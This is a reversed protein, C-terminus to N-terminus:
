GRYDRAALTLEAGFERDHQDGFAIRELGRKIADQKQMFESKAKLPMVSVKDDYAGELAKVFSGPQCLFDIDATWGRNNGGKCFTSRSIRICAETWAEQGHEHLRAKVAQKRKQTIARPATLGAPVCITRYDEIAKNVDVKSQDARRYAELEHKLRANEEKLLRIEEEM